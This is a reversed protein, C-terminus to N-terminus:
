GFKSPRTTTLLGNHTCAVVIPTTTGWYTLANERTNKLNDRSNQNM